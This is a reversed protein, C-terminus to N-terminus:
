NGTSVSPRSRRPLFSLTLAVTCAIVLGLGIVFFASAAGFFIPQNLTTGDAMDWTCSVGFPFAIHDAAQLSNLAESVGNPIAELCIEYPQQFGLNVSYAGVTLFLGVVLLMIAIFRVGAVNRPRTADSTM